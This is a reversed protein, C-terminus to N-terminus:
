GTKLPKTARRSVGIKPRECEHSEEEEEEEERRSERGIEITRASAPPFVSRRDAAPRSGRSTLAYRMRM